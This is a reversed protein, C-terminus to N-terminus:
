RQDDEEGRAMLLAAALFVLGLGLGIALRTPDMARSGGGGSVGGDVSVMHVGQAFILLLAAVLGGPLALLIAWGEWGVREDDEDPRIVRSGFVGEEEVENM